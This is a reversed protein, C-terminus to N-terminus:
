WCMANILFFLTYFRNFNRKTPLLQLLVSLNDLNV